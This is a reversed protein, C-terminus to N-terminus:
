APFGAYCLTASVLKTQGAPDVQSSNKIGFCGDKENLEDGQAEVQLLFVATCIVTSDPCRGHDVDVSQVETNALSVVRGVM